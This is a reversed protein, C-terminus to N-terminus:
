GLFTSLTPSASPIRGSHRPKLYSIGQPGCTPPLPQDEIRQSPQQLRSFTAKDLRSPFLPLRQVIQHAPQLTSLQLRADQPPHHPSNYLQLTARFWFPDEVRGGLGFRLLHLSPGSYSVAVARIWTM